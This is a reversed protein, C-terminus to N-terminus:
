WPYYATVDAVLDAGNQTFLCVKGGSGLKSIVLNPRSDDARLNLTSALPRTQGCPWVTVFGDTPVNTGTVNLVVAAAAAPVKTAGAGAVTLEVTRGAAPRPGVYGVQGAGTRTDLLREPAVAVIPSDAPHYATIDAILDAGNQTFVCVKGGAGIKSIVLNPRSDDARLNLSSALPRAEGCPWVTVFGDEPANTGTVNMVVAAADAPVNTAGAGVVTLEVTQGSAPRPGSYGVQGAGPRTDLLREPALAVIPSGGPYYATIDAVLDAGNQTFLCVTGGAGIKSIVLNPRSDDARLNLSSALPRAEGCPWVTVFGDTAVNTGTINLAVAAADAPVNTVGAAVVTLEVTQGATPRAGKYGVQGAGSRTDLLREPPVAVISRRTWTEAQCNSCTTGPVPTLIVQATRGDAAMAIVIGGDGAYPGTGPPSCTYHAITGSYQGPSGAVASVAIHLPLCFRKNIGVLEGTFSDPGAAVMQVISGDGVDWSGALSSTAYGVDAVAAGATAVAAALLAVASAVLLFRWVRPFWDM